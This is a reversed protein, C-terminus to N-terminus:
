AVSSEYSNIWFKSFHCKRRAAWLTDFRQGDSQHSRSFYLMLERWWGKRRIIREDDEHDQEAISIMPLPMGLMTSVNLGHRSQTSRSEHEDAVDRKLLKGIRGTIRTAKLRTGTMEAEEAELNLEGM